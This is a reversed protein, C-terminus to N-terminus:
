RRKKKEDKVKRVVLLALEDMFYFVGDMELALVRVRIINKGRTMEVNLYCYAKSEYEKALGYETFFHTVQPSKLSFGWQKAEKKIRKYQKALSVKVKRHKYVNTLDSYKSAETSDIYRMFVNFSPTFHLIYGPENNKLAALLTDLLVILSPNELILNTDKATRLKAYTSDRNEWYKLYEENLPNVKKVVSDIETSDSLRNVFYLEVALVQSSILFLLLFLCLRMTSLMYCVFKIGMFTVVFSFKIQFMTKNLNM